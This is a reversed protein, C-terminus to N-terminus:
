VLRAGFARFLLWFDIPFRPWSTTFAQEQIIHLLYADNKFTNDSSEFCKAIGFHYSLDSIDCPLIKFVRVRSLWMCTMSYMCGPATTVGGVAEATRSDSTGIYPEWRFLHYTQGKLKHAGERWCRGRGGRTHSSYTRVQAGWNGPFHSWCVVEM